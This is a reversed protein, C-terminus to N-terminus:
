LYIVIGFLGSFLIVFIPPLRTFLLVALAGLMILIATGDMSGAVGVLQNKIAFRIAAYCILGTIVPRIGYFASQTLFHDKVKYFFMAVVLIILLSPLTTGLTSVIAGLIGAKEYGVFIACNTAIPGPSMSAIAIIDTFQETTLWGHQDVEMEIIPIIAYGGGFSVFGIKFFTIFLEWLM